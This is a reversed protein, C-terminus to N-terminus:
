HSGVKGRDRPREKRQAVPLLKAQLLNYAYVKDKKNKNRWICIM